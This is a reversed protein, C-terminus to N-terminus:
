TGLDTSGADEIMKDTGIFVILSAGKSARRTVFFLVVKKAGGRV